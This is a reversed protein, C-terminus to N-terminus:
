FDFVNQCLTNYCLYEAFLFIHIVTYVHVHLQTPFSEM